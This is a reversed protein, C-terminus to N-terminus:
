RYGFHDDTDGLENRTIDKLLEEVAGKIMSCVVPDSQYPDGTRFLNGGLCGICLRNAFCSGCKESDYRNYAKLDKQVSLFDHSEFVNDEEVTGMYFGNEDTLMHCPSIVGTTSIGFTTLGAKCIHESMSHHSRLVKELKRLKTFIFKRYDDSSKDLIEKIASVFCGNDVLGFSSDKSADVPVINVKNIGLEEKMYKVADTVTVEHQQHIGSYCGNVSSPCKGGTAQKWKKINDKIVSVTTEGNRFRRVIDHIMEPGDFSLGVRWNYKISYAIIEDDLITGNTAIIFDPMYPIVGNGFKEYVYDCLACVVDKNLLPEGGIFKISGIEGYQEAFIDIAKKAVDLPMLQEHSHYTGGNAYCYGCNMNCANAVNLTLRIKEEPLQVAKKGDERLENLCKDFFDAETDMSVSDYAEKSKGAMIFDYCEKEKKNIRKYTVTDCFFVIWDDGDKVFHTRKYTM